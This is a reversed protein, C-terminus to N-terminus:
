AGQAADPPVCEFPQAPQAFLCPGNGLISIANDRFRALLAFRRAVQVRNFLKDAYDAPSGGAPLDESFAQGETRRWWPRRHGTM